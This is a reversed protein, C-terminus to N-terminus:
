TVLSGNYCLICLIPETFGQIYHLLLTELLMRYTRYMCKVLGLMNMLSLGM